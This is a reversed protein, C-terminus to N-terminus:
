LTEKVESGFKKTEQLMEMTFNISNQILFMFQTCCSLANALM